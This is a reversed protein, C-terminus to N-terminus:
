NDEDDDSCDAEDEAEAVEAEFEEETMDVLLETIDEPFPVTVWEETLDEQWGHYKPDEIEMIPTSAQQWIRAVYNARNIHLLLSSHCPPLLSLDTIRNERSYNKWFIKKRVENVSTLRKETYLRCVFRELSSLLSESARMELGVEGFATLFEPNEKVLNWCVRKGRRMFSSVYDNGSFAHLGLLAQKQEYSLDCSALDFLKRHKGAGNDVYFHLIQYKM